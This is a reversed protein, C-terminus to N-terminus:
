KVTKSIVGLDRNKKQDAMGLYEDLLNRTKDDIQPLRWPMGTSEDLRNQRNLLEKAIPKANGPEFQRTVYLYNWVALQQDSAEPLGKRNFEYVWEQDAM